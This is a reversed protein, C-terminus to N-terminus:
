AGARVFARGDLHLLGSDASGGCIEVDQEGAKVIGTVKGVQEKTGLVLVTDFIKDAFLPKLSQRAYLTEISDAHATAVFKVGCRVGEAIAGVDESSGIEDCFIIDPSLARVALSIGEAKSYGSLIDLTNGRGSEFRTAPFLESREDIVTCKVPTGIYGNALETALARLVTTKGSMPAGVLLLNQLGSQFGLLLTERAANPIEKAIRINLASIERIGIIKGNETVATGCLGIRHGGAVTLCGNKLDEQHSHVSYGCAHTVIDQLEHQSTCFLHESRMYTPKGGVTLYFSRAPSVLLMPGNARLRLEILSNLLSPPLNFFLERIRKPLIASIQIFEEQIQADM